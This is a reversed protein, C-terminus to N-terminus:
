DHLRALRLGEELLDVLYIFRNWEVSTVHRFSISVTEVEDVTHALVDQEESLPACLGILQLGAEEFVVRPIFRPRFVDIRIGGEVVVEPLTQGLWWDSHSVAHLQNELRLKEDLLIVVDGDEGERHDIFRPIVREVEEFHVLSTFLDGSELAAM